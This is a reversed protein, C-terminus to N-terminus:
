KRRTEEQRNTTNRGASYLLTKNKSYSVVFENSQVYM